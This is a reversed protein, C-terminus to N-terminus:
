DHAARGHEIMAALRTGAIFAKSLFEREDSIGTRHMNSEMSVCKTYSSAAMIRALREWDVSGTFPINHQDGTGDNDHLHVAILRDKLSDLEDLGSDILNGHGCDYCLGLYDASYQSFLRHIARLSDLTTNELAIRVSRARAYPELADLSCRLPEWQPDRELMDDLSSPPHMVIADGGLAAAMDIRNRVLEVGALREYERASTWKKESGDSAHLDLLKLNLAALWHQIQEIEVPLYLFDTNWHHCWHIHTYGAEAIQRLYPEPNGKDRAYDTTISLM